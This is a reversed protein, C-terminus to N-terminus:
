KLLRDLGFQNYKHIIFAKHNKEHFMGGNKENNGFGLWKLASVDYWKEIELYIGFM